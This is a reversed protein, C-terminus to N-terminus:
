CMLQGIVLLTSMLNWNPRYIDLSIMADSFFALALGVVVASAVARANWGLVCTFGLVATTLALVTKAVPFDIELLTTLLWYEALTAVGIGLIFRFFSGKRPAFPLITL